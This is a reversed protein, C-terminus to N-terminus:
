TFRERLEKCLIELLIKGYEKKTIHNGLIDFFREIPISIEADNEIYKIVDLPSKSVVPLTKNELNIDSLVQEILEDGTHSCMNEELLKQVLSILQENRQTINPLHLKKVENEHYIKAYKELLSDLPYYEDNKGFAAVIDLEYDDLFDKADM